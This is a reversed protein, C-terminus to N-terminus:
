SMKWFLYMLKKDKNINETFSKLWEKEYLVGKGNKDSYKLNANGFPDYVIWGNETEGVILIIHGGPLGPLKNTCLIVPGNKLVESLEEWTGNDVRFICEGQV